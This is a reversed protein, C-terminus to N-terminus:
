AILDIVAGSRRGSLTTQPSGAIAPAASTGQSRGATLGIASTSVAGAAEGSQGSSPAKALEAQAQQEMAQAEAAVSLDQPSPDAPALASRAVTEEKLITARPDNSVPSTDITVEGAVAYRKGDPGTTYSYSAGGRVYQGGAAMHAQEHTHVNQDAAKLKEVLRQQEPTLENKKNAGSPASGAPATNKDDPKQPTQGAADDSPAVRPTFATASVNSTPSITM